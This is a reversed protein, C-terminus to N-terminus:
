PLVSVRPLEEDHARQPRDHLGGYAERGLAVRPRARHAPHIEGDRARAGPQAGVDLYPRPGEPGRLLRAGEHTHLQARGHPRADHRAARRPGGHRVHLGWAAQDLRAQGRAPAGLRALAQRHGAPAHGRRGRVRHGRTRGDSGRRFEDHSRALLGGGCLARLDKPAPPSTRTAPRAADPHAMRM